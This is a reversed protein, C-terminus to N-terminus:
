FNPIPSPRTQQQPQTVSPPTYSGAPATPQPAPQQQNLSQEFSSSSYPSRTPQQPAVNFVPLNSSAPPQYGTTGVPPSMAPTTRIYPASISGAAPLSPLDGSFIESSSGSSGGSSRATPLSSAPAASAPSGQAPATRSAQQRTLADSLASGLPATPAATASGGGANFSSPATASSGSLTTSLAPAAPANTSSASTPFKYEEEYAAFPNDRDALNRSSDAGEATAGTAKKAADTTAASTAASPSSLKSEKLLVDITDIESLQAQEEPTLNSDRSLTSTPPRNFWEPNHHYEWLFASILTFVALPAWVAPARLPKLRAPLYRLFAPTAMLTFGSPTYRTNNQYTLEINDFPNPM